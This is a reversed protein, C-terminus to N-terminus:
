RQPLGCFNVEGGANVPAQDVVTEMWALLPLLVPRSEADSSRAEEILLPNAGHGGNRGFQLFGAHQLGDARRVDATFAYSAAVELPLHPTEFPPLQMLKESDLIQELSTLQDANLVADYVQLTARTSPLTQMRREAHLRGDPWVMACLGGTTGEQVLEAQSRQMRVLFGADRTAASASVHSTPIQKSQAVALATVSWLLAMKMVVSCRPM